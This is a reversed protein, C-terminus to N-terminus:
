LPLGPDRENELWPKEFWCGDNRTIFEANFVSVGDRSDFEKM